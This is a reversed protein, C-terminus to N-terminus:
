RSKDLHRHLTVDHRSDTLRTVIPCTTAYLFSKIALTLWQFNHLATRSALRPLPLLHRFVLASRAVQKAVSLESVFLHALHALVCYRVTIRKRWATGYYKTVGGYQSNVERRPFDLVAIDCLWALRRSSLQTRSTWFLRALRSGTCSDLSPLLQTSQCGM